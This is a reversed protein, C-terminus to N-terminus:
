PILSLRKYAFEKLKAKNNPDDSKDLKDLFALHYKYDIYKSPAERKQYNNDAIEIIKREDENNKDLFLSFIKQEIMLSLYVDKDHNKDFVSQVKSWYEKIVDLYEKNKNGTHLYRYRFLSAKILYANTAFRREHNEYYNIAADLEKEVEEYDVEFGKYESKIVLYCPFYTDYYFYHSDHPIGKRIELFNSFNGDLEDYINIETNRQKEGSIIEINSLFILPSFLSRGLRIKQVPTLASDNEIKDKLIHYCSSFDGMHKLVHAELFLADIRLIRNNDDHDSDSIEALIENEIIEKSLRYDQLFHSINAYIYNLKLNYYYGTSLKVRKIEKNYYDKAEPYKADKLFQNIDREFTTLPIFNSEGGLIKILKKYNRESEIIKKNTPSLQDLSFDNKSVIYKIEKDTLSMDVDLCDEKKYQFLFVTFDTELEAIDKPQGTNIIFVVNNKLCYYTSSTLISDSYYRKYISLSGIHHKKRYDNQNIYSAFCEKIVEYSNNEDNIEINIVHFGKKEIEKDILSKLIQIRSRFIDEDPLNDIDLAGIMEDTMRKDNISFFAIIDQAIFYLLGMAEVIISLILAFIDNKDNLLLSSTILCALFLLSIFSYIFIMMCKSLKKRGKIVM